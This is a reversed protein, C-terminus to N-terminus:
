CLSKDIQLRRAVLGTDVRVDIQDSGLLRQQAIPLRQRVQV